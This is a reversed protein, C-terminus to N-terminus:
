DLEAWESCEQALEDAVQAIVFASHVNGFEDHLVQHADHPGQGGWIYGGEGSDYPLSHVPDEYHDLFWERLQQAVSDAEAAEATLLVDSNVLKFTGPEVYEWDDHATLRNHLTAAISGVKAQSLGSAKIVKSAPTVMLLGNNGHAMIVAADLHTSAVAVDSPLTKGHTPTDEFIRPPEMLELVHEAAAISYGNAKIAAELEGREAYLQNLLQQVSMTDM